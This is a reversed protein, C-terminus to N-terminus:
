WRAHVLPRVIDDYAKKVGTVEAESLAPLSGASANAEAQAVSKVGPIVVAGSGAGTADLIFRLCFSAFSPASSAPATAAAASATAVAASATAMASEAEAGGASPACRAKYAEYVSKIRDVAELAEDLHAGLGSWTEGADFSAGLRNFVRHDTEPLAEIFAKDVKGTLLGSALPVRALIATGAEKAAPVVKELPKLRLANLIIQVAACDGQAIALLAEEETEVSVGYQEILKDEDRLRRLAKFVDGSRLVSPLPCHLQLLDVRDVGLREASGVVQEKLSDYSYNAETHEGQRGAKTLVYVREGKDKREKLVRGIVREARGLGSEDSYINATDLVNVGADLAAHLAAASADDDATGWDGGGMAWTGIGVASLEWGARGFLRHEM